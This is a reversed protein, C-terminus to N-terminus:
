LVPCEQHLYVRHQVNRELYAENLFGSMTPILVGQHQVNQELYAENLFGSMRPILVGQHQM